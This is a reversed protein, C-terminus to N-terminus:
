RGVVRFPASQQVGANGAADIPRVYAVYGGPALRRGGIRIANSGGALNPRTVKKVTVRRGGRRRVIRLVVNARESLRFSIKPASMARARVRAAAARTSSYRVARPSLRLASLVPATTDRPPVGTGASTPEAGSGAGGSDTRPEPPPPTTDDTAARVEGAAALPCAPITPRSHHWIVEYRAIQGPALGTTARDDFSVGVGNDMFLPNITNRFADASSLRRVVPFPEGEEYSAWRPIPMATTEGPLLSSTAEELGGTTFPAFKNTGGLFRNAGEVFVGCSADSGIFLDASTGFIFPITRSQPDTNLVEWIVRYRTQGAVYLVTQKVEFLKENVGATNHVVNMLTDVRAPSAATWDGTPSLVNSVGTIPTDRSGFVVNDAPAGKVKLHWYNTAPASSGGFFMGPFDENATGRKAQLNGADGVYISLLRPPNSPPAAPPTAASDGLITQTAAQASVPLGLVLVLACGLLLSRIRNM